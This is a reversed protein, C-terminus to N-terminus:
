LEASSSGEPSFQSGVVKWQDVFKTATELPEGCPPIPIRGDALLEVVAQGISCTLTVAVARQSSNGSHDESIQWSRPEDIWAWGFEVFALGDAIQVPASDLGINGRLHEHAEVAPLTRDLLGLTTETDLNSWTMGSPLMMATPAFRHGGLHSSRWLRVRGRDRVRGAVHHTDPAGLAYEMELFLLTGSQGCCRDRSGHTCILLDTVGDDMSSEMGALDDNIISRLLGSLQENEVLTQRREFRAFPQESPRSYCIVRRYGTPVQSDDHGSPVVALLQTKGVGKLEGKLGALAPHADIKKPWPLPLQVLVIRDAGGATGAPSEGLLVTQVACHLDEQASSLAGVPSAKSRRALRAGCTNCGPLQM